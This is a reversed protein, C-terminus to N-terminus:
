MGLIANMIAESDASMEVASAGAAVGGGGKAGAAAATRPDIYSPKMMADIAAPKFMGGGDPRLSEVSFVSSGESDTPSASGTRGAGAATDLGGFVPPSSGGGAMHQLSSDRRPPPPPRHAAASVDPEWEDTEAVLEELQRELETKSAAVRTQASPRWPAPEGAASAAAIADAEDAMAAAAAAAAIEKAKLGKELKSNEARLLAVEMELRELDEAQQREMAELMELEATESQSVGGGGGGGGLPVREGNWYIDAAPAVLM